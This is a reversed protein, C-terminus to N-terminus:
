IEIVLNFGHGEKFWGNLPHPLEDPKIIEKIIIASQKSKWNSSTKRSCCVIVM